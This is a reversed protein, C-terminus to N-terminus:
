LSRGAILQLLQNKTTTIDAFPAMVMLSRDDSGRIQFGKRRLYKAIDQMSAIGESYQCFLCDWIEDEDHKARQSSHWFAMRYSTLHLLNNM